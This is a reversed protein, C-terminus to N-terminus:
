DGGFRFSNGRFACGDDFRIKGGPDLQSGAANNSFVCGLVRIGGPARKEYSFLSAAENGDFTCNRLTVDAANGLQILAGQACANGLINCGALTVDKTGAELRLAPGGGGRLRVNKLTVGECGEFLLAGGAGGAGNNGIVVNEITINRCNVFHLVFSGGWETFLGANQWDYGRITLGSGIDRIVLDRGGGRARWEV